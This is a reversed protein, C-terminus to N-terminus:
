SSARSRSAPNLNDRVLNITAILQTLGELAYYECQIPILVSDAATLANVTLLGLSPPCDLLVYDYDDVIPRSSAHSGASASSADARARGRRRRPRRVGPRDFLDAVATAIVADRSRRRRRTISTTSRRARPTISRDGFGSTANGQPDLDVVLVREGALALYTASISWPRPRASAARRTPVPSRRAWEPGGAAIRERADFEVMQVAESGTETRDLAQVITSAPRKM